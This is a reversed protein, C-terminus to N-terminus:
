LQYQEVIEALGRALEDLQQAAREAQRTSAMSQATAQNISQMTVAIQEMGSTQQQGGAVMQMASQASENIVGALQDIANRMQEVLEVGADVGKKGEETAMATSATAKQIDSLIAKVQATAQTSRDALDRVEEAVVAFGKGQEGARAAEVAANLALMNSQSAVDNVTDIIEGIQQTRESLALINEEIVDVRAKIQAMGAITERSVEQGARSVEVTRQASDAVSRSRTVLQEAITRIEDVTTTAQSVAASQESASSAQQSTTALIEASQSSLANATKRVQDLVQLLHERQEQQSAARREIELNAQQLHERQEEETAIRREIEMLALRAQRFFGEQDAVVTYAVVAAVLLAVAGAFVTVALEITKSLPPFWSPAVTTVLIVDAIFVVVCVGMLWRGNRAGLLLCSVTAIVAYAIAIPIMAQPLLLANVSVGALFSIIFVSAGLLAQNRRHFLPYVGAGMAMGLAVIAVFLLQTYQQSFLWAVLMPVFLSVNAWTLYRSTNLAFQARRAYLQADVVRGHEAKDIASM